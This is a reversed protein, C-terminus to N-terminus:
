RYTTQKHRDIRWADDSTAYHVVMVALAGVATVFLSYVLM